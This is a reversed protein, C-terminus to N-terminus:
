ITPTTSGVGSTTTYPWGGGAAKDLEEQPLEASVKDPAPETAAVDKDEPKVKNESM